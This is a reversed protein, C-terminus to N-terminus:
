SWIEGDSEERGIESVGVAWECWRVVVQSVVTLGIEELEREEKM